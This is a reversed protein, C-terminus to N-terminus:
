AASTIPNGKLCYLNAYWYRNAKMENWISELPMLRGKEDDIAQIRFGHATLWDIVDQPETGALRLSAPAIEIILVLEPQGRDNEEMGALATMEHGEIDIKIVDVAKGGLFGDISVCEVDIAGIANDPEHLSHESTAHVIHMQARRPSDSVAYPLLTACPFRNTEICQKLITFNVPVPEFSYVMGRGALKSCAVSAFYGFHAGIDLVISGPRIANGFLEITQPEHNLIRFLTWLYIQEFAHSWKVPRM